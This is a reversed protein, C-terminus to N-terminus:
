QPVRRSIRHPEGVGPDPISGGADIDEGVVELDCGLYRGRVIGTFEFETSRGAPKDFRRSSEKGRWKRNLVGSIPCSM